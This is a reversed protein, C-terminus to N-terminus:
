HEPTPSCRWRCVACMATIGAHNTENIPETPYGTNALDNGELAGVFACGIQAISDEAFMDVVDSM